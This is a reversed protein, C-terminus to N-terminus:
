RLFSLQLANAIKELQNDIIKFKADGLYYKMGYGAGFVVVAVLATAGIARRLNRIFDHSQKMKKFQCHAKENNYLDGLESYVSRQKAWSQRSDESPIFRHCGECITRLKREQMHGCRPCALVVIDPQEFEIKFTSDTMVMNKDFM